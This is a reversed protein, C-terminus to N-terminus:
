HGQANNLEELSVSPYKESHESLKKSAIYYLGLVKYDGTQELHEGLYRKARRYHEKADLPERIAEAQGAENLEFLGLEKNSM